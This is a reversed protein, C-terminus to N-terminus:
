EVYMNEQRLLPCSHGDHSEVHSVKSRGSKSRARGMAIQKMKQIM